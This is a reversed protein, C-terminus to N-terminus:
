RGCDGQSSVRNSTINIARDSPKRAPRSRKAILTLSVYQTLEAVFEQASMVWSGAIGLFTRGSCHVGLNDQRMSEDRTRKTKRASLLLRMIVFDPAEGNCSGRALVGNCSITRFVTVRFMPLVAKERTSIADNFSTSFGRVLMRM